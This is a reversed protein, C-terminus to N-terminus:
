HKNESTAKQVVALIEEFMVPKNLLCYFDTKHSDKVLYQWGCATIGIIPTLRNKTSSQIRKTAEFGDLEPLRIDMLIVDYHNTFCLDVAEQGTIAIEVTYDKSLVIDYIRQMIPDDDVCLIRNKDM